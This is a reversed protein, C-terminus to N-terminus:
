LGCLALKRKRYQLSSGFVAIYFLLFRLMVVVSCKNYQNYFFTSKVLRLDACSGPILVALVISSGVTEKIQDCLFDDLTLM